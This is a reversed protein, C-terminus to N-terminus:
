AHAHIAPLHGANKFRKIERMPCASVRGSPYLSLVLRASDSFNSSLHRLENCHTAYNRFAWRPADTSVLSHPRVNSRSQLRIKGFADLWFLATAGANKARTLRGSQFERLYIM